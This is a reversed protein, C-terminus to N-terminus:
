ASSPMRSLTADRPSPSTYLLCDVNLRGRKTGPDYDAVATIDRVHVKPRAEIHVSRHLGAHWWHDQDEIWTVDGYRIVMVALTNKGAALHPTLDFESPLRSDKGMGVFNGNCWVVAISEAGGLHLVVNNSKWTRPCTFTTVHLGTPNEAPAEPPDLPWPMIINTYHPHDGTNQRTWSGPVSITRWGKRSATPKMWNKPALGPSDVLRFLWDGDLSKRHPSPENAYAARADPVPALPTRTPLRNLETLEPQLLAEIDIM